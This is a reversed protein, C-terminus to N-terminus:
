SNLLIEKQKSEDFNSITSQLKSILKDLFLKLNDYLFDISQKNESERDTIGNVIEDDKQIELLNYLKEIDITRDNESVKQLEIGNLKILVENKTENLELTIEKKM